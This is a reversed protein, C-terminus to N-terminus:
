VGRSARMALQRLRPPECFWVRLRHHPSAALLLGSVVRLPVFAKVWSPLEKRNKFEWPLQGV